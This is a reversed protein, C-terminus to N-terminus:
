LLQKIKYTFDIVDPVGGFMGLRYKKKLNDRKQLDEVESLKFVTTSADVAEVIHAQDQELLDLTEHNHSSFFLQAHKLNTGDSVFLQLLASEMDPHYYRSTEDYVVVGGKKFISFLDYIYYFLERTGASEAMVDLDSVFNKHRIMVPTKRSHDLDVDLISDNFCSLFTTVVKKFEKKEDDTFNSYRSAMNHAAFTPIMLDNEDTKLFFSERNDIFDQVLPAGVNNILHSILTQYPQVKSIDVYKKYDSHEPGLDISDGIRTFIEKPKAGKVHLTTVYLVEKVIKKGDLIELDYTYYNTGFLLDVSITTPKDKFNIHKNPQCLPVEFVQQAAFAVPNVMYIMRITRVLANLVNSKGSANAGYFGNILSVKEREKYHFYSEEPVVGGKTFSLEIEDGISYFNGVRLKTIM